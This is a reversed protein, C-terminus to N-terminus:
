LTIINGSFPFAFRLLVNHTHLVVNEDLFTSVTVFFIWKLRGQALDVLRESGSLTKAAWM